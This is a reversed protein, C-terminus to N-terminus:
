SFQYGAEETLRIQKQDSLVARIVARNCLNIIEAQSRGQQCERQLEDHSWEIDLEGTRKVDTLYSDAMAALEEPLFAELEHIVSFRRLVAADLMDSRNTAALIVADRRVIDMCQMLSITTRTMEDGSGGKAYSGRNAGVADLEDLMFLCPTVNVFDFITRLNRSTGGLQADTLKSLNVYVFPLDLSYALFRGFQTKGVGSQGWLLTSNLFPIGARKLIPIGKNLRIIDDLLRQERPSVWYRRPNFTKKVDEFEILGAVEPPITETTVPELKPMIWQYM